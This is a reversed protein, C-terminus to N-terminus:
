AKNKRTRYEALVYMDRRGSVIPTISAHLKSMDADFAIPRKHANPDASTNTLELM